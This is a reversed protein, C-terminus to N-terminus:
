TLEIIWKVWKVLERCVYSLNSLEIIWKIWKMLEITWCNVIVYDFIMM